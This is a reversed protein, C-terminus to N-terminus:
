RGRVGEASLCAHIRVLNSMSGSTNMFERLLNLAKKFLPHHISDTRMGVTITTMTNKFLACTTDTAEFYLVKTYGDVAKRNFWTIAIRRYKEGAAM